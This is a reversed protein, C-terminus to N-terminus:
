SPNVTTLQFGYDMLKTADDWRYDDNLLVVILQVGGRKAGAVLCDGAADTYGTKIGDAGSYIKLFKNINSVKIPARNLFHVVYAPTSVIRAFDPNQMGTAAIQALDLATSYHNYPDPLGNPNSFHTNVMGIKDVRANMMDAFAPVSGAIHEAAAVAADNGSILMMGTLLDRLTLQDGVNLGLRSEETAAANPSVTVISNLDGRELATLLTVMKTTSAPYMIKTANKTFLVRRTTADMVVAAEASIQPPQPAAAAFVQCFLLILIVLAFTRGIM